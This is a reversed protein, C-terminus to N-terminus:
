HHGVLVSAPILFFSGWPNPNEEEGEPERRGANKKEKAYDREKREM